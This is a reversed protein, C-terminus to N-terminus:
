PMRRLKAENRRGTNHQIVTQQFPSSQKYLRALYELRLEESKIQYVCPELLYMDMEDKTSVKEIVRRQQEPSLAGMYLILSTTIHGM